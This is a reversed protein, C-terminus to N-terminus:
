IIDGEYDIGTLTEYFRQLSLKMNHVEIDTAMLLEDDLYSKIWGCLTWMDLIDERRDMHIRMYTDYIPKIYRDIAGEWM